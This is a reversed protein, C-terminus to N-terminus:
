RYLGAPCCFDGLKTRSGNSFTRYFSESGFSIGIVALAIMEFPGPVWAFLTM